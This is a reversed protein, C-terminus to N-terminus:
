PDKVDEGFYTDTHDIKKTDPYKKKYSQANVGVMLAVNLLVFATKKM